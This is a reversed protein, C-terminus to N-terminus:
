PYLLGQRLCVCARGPVLLARGPILLSCMAKLDPAQKQKNSQKPFVAESQLGPQGSVGWLTLTPKLTPGLVRAETAGTIMPTAVM